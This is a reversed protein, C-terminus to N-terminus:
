GKAFNLRLAFRTFVDVTIHTIRYLDDVITSAPGIRPTAVDDVYVLGRVRIAHEADRKDASRDGFFGAGGTVDIRPILGDNDLRCGTCFLIRAMAIVHILDALPTGAVTGKTFKYVRARKGRADVWQVLCCTSAILEDTENSSFGCNVLWRRWQEESIDDGLLAVRRRMSAFARLVDAYIIAMSGHKSGALALISRTM